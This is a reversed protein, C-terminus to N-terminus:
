IEFVDDDSASKKDEFAPMVSSVTEKLKWIYKYCEQPNKNFIKLVEEKSMLTERLINSAKTRSSTGRLNDLFIKQWRETVDEKDLVLKFQLTLLELDARFSWIAKELGKFKSQDIKSLIDDATKGMEQIKMSITDLTPIPVEKM